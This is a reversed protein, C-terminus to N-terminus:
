VCIKTIKKTKKIKNCNIEFLHQSTSLDRLRLSHLSCGILMCSCTKTGRQKIKRCKRQLLQQSFVTSHDAFFAIWKRKWELRDHNGKTPNWTGGHHSGFKRKVRAWLATM